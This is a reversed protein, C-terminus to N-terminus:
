EKVIWLISKFLSVTNDHIAGASRKLQLLVLLLIHPALVIGRSNESVYFIIQICYIFQFYSSSNLKKIIIKEPSNFFLRLTIIIYM